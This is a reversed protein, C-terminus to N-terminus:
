RSHEHDRIHDMCYGKKSGTCQSCYRFQMNPDELDTLGCVACEHTATSAERVAERRKQARRNIGRARLYLDRGFFLVLNSLGAAVLVRTGWSGVVLQWGYLGLTLLALWKIKVPLLFFLRLEFDPNLYAFALFISSMLFVNTATAGPVLFASGVSAVWGVFVFANFRFTGWYEELARGYLFLLMLAFVIFLISRSPPIFLFSVLRWVEGELVRQPVLELAALIEPKTLALVFAAAQGVVLFVILQPIAFRGLVRELKNLM